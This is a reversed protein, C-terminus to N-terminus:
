KLRIIRLFREVYEQDLICNEYNEESAQKPIGLEVLAQDFEELELYSEEEYRKIDENVSPIHFTINKGDLQIQYFFEGKKKYEVLSIKKNGFGTTISEVDKYQYVKGMPCLPSHCIISDKTVVTVNTICCYLGILWLLLIVVRGKGIHNWIYVFDNMKEMQEKSKKSIKAAFFLGLMMVPIGILWIIAIGAVPHHEYFLYDSPLMCKELLLMVAVVVVIVLIGLIIVTTTMWRWEKNQKKVRNKHRRYQMGYYVWNLTVLVTGILAFIASETLKGYFGNYINYFLSFAPAFYILSLVITTFLNPCGFDKLEEVMEGMEDSELFEITENYEEILQPNEKYEKALSLCIDQKTECVDKQDSFAEAKIRLIEKIEDEEKELFNRIEEISFDLYRFLKIWKLRNVENESYSRYSNEENREVTILNKSEYHRITKATLGTLKEVDKITM